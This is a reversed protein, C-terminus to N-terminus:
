KSDYSRSISCKWFWNEYYVINVDLGRKLRDSIVECGRTKACKNSFHVFARQYGDFEQQKRILDVRYVSGKGLINEFAKIIDSKTTDLYMRPICISPLKTYKSEM